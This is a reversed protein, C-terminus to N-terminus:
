NFYLVVNSYNINRYNKKNKCENKLLYYHLVKKKKEKVYIERKEIYYDFLRMCQKLVTILKKPELEKFHYDRKCFIYHMELEKLFPKMKEIVSDTFSDQTFFRSDDFSKIGLCSLINLILKDEPKNNFLQNITM